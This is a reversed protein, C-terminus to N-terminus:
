ILGKRLLLWDPISYQGHSLKQIHSIPFWELHSTSPGFWPLKLTVPGASERNLSLLIGEATEHVVKARLTTFKAVNPHSDANSCEPDDLDGDWYLADDKMM